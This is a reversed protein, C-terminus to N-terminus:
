IIYKEILRKQISEYVINYVCLYANHTCKKMLTNELRVKLKM